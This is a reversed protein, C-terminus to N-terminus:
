LLDQKGNAALNRCPVAGENRHVHCHSNFTVILIIVFYYKM